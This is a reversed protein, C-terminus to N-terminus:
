DQPKKAALALNVIAITKRGAVDDPKGRRSALYAPLREVDKRPAAMAFADAADPETRALLEDAVLWPDPADKAALVKLAADDKARVAALAAGAAQEPTLPKEPLAAPAPPAGMTPRGLLLLVLVVLLRRM